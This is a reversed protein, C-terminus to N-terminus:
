ENLTYRCIISFSCSRPNGNYRAPIYKMKRSYEVAASDLIAYGSTQEVTAKYVDGSKNIIIKVGVSGQQHNNVALQPYGLKISTLLEAPTSINISDDQIVPTDMLVLAVPKEAAKKKKFIVYTNQEFTKFSLGSGSLIKRLAEQVDKVNINVTIKVSKAMSDDYIFSTGTKIRIEEIIEKLPQNACSILIPSEKTLPQASLVMSVFIINLILAKIEVM